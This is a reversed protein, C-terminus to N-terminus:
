ALLLLKGANLAVTADAKTAPSVYVVFTRPKLQLTRMMRTSRRRTDRETVNLRGTGNM